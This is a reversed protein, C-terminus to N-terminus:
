IYLILLMRKPVLGTPPHSLSSCVKNSLSMDKTKYTQKVMTDNINQTMLRRGITMKKHSALGSM